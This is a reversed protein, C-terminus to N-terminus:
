DLGELHMSSKPEKNSNCRKFCYRLLMFAKDHYYKLLLKNTCNFSFQFKKNFNNSHIELKMRHHSEVREM